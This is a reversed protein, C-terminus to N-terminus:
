KLLKALQAAKKNISKNDFSLEEVEPELNAIKIGFSINGEIFGKMSYIFLAKLTIGEEKAKKLAKNKLDEDATFSVQTTM